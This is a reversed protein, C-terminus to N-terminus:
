AGAKTDSEYGKAAEDVHRKLALTFDWDARREDVEMFLGIVEDDDLLCLLEILEERDVQGRLEYSDQAM